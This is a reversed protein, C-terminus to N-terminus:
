IWSLYRSNRLECVEAWNLETVWNHRSKAVGHAAPCRAERDMVLKQLQEVAIQPRDQKRTWRAEQMGRAGWCDDHSHCCVSSQLKPLGWECKSALFWPYSHCKKNILMAPSIKMECRWCVKHLIWIPSWSHAVRNPPFTSFCAKQYIYDPSFEIFRTEQM